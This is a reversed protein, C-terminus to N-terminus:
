YTNFTDKNDNIIQNGLLIRGYYTGRLLISFHATVDSSSNILPWTETSTVINDSEIPSGGTVPVAWITIQSSFGTGFLEIKTHGDGCGRPYNSTPISYGCILTIGTISIPTPSPSLTPSPTPTATPVPIVTSTPVPAKPIPKITPTFTPSVTPIPSDLDSDNYTANKFRKIIKIDEDSNLKAWVTIKESYLIKKLAPKTKCNTQTESDETVDTETKGESCNIHVTHSRVSIKDEGTTLVKHEYATGRVSAVM